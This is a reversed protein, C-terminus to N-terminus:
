PWCARAGTSGASGPRLTGAPISLSTETRTFAQGLVGKAAQFVDARVRVQIDLDGKTIGHPLATGGVHEICADPLLSNIVAEIRSFERDATDRIASVDRAVRDM